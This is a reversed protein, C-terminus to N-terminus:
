HNARPAISLCVDPRHVICTDDQPHPDRRVSTMKMLAGTGMSMGLAPELQRDRASVCSYIAIFGLVQAAFSGAERTIKVVVGKGLSSGMAVTLPVVMRGKESLRDLWLPLPHTVGANILMANCAGPDLEAGDGTHVTVNAYRSLNKRAQNSLDSDVEAAVVHGTRGAMEAMVATYYGSGCGLHFVSDGVQIDLEDIWRGLTAPQGNVLHRSTNLAVSVNHYIHRPDADDTTLYTAGIGIDGLAISWPGTGLFEERPV